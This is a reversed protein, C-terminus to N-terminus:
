CHALAVSRCIPDIGIVEAKTVETMACPLHLIPSGGAFPSISPTLSSQDM